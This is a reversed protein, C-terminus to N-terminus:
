VFVHLVDAPRSAFKHPKEKSRCAIVAPLLFACCVAVGMMETSQSFLSGLKSADSLNCTEFLHYLAICGGLFCIHLSTPGSTNLFSTTYQLLLLVTKAMLFAM